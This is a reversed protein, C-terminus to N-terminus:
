FDHTLDKVQMRWVIRLGITLAAMSLVHVVPGHGSFGRAVRWSGRIMAATRPKRRSEYARLASTVDPAAAMYRALVVADELAMNLGQGQTFPMAHAADGLLTVRGEGWRDSPDRGVMDVQGIAAEPTAAILAEVPEPFGRSRALIAPKMAGAPDRSGQPAANTEYWYLQGPRIHYALVSSRPGYWLMFMGEPLREHRFETIARAVVFGAYRPPAPGLLQTRVASNMGDAGVLFDGRETRGDAFRATVGEADQVFGTCEAGLRITGEEQAEALIRHLESRRIGVTPVGIARGLKGVPWRAVRWGGWRGHVSRHDYAEIVQGAAEAKEGLGLSRMARMGNNRVQLGGGIQAKELRDAREFVAVQHGAQKLARAAALGGLGGGIIVARM